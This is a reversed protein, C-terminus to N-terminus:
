LAGDAAMQMYSADFRFMVNSEAGTVTGDPHAIGVLGASPAGEGLIGKDFLVTAGPNSGTIESVLPNWTVVTKVDDTACAAIMDADSTNVVDDLDKEARGASDVARALLSHSM